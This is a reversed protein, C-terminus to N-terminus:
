RGSLNRLSVGSQPGPRGGGPRLRQRWEFKKEPVSSTEPRLKVKLTGTFFQGFKNQEIKIV